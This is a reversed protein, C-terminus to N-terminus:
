LIPIQKKGKKGGDIWSWSSHQAMSARLHFSAVSSTSSRDNILSSYTWAQHEASHHHELHREIWDFLLFDIHFGLFIDPASTRPHLWKQSLLITYVPMSKWPTLLL